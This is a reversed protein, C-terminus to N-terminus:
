NLKEFHAELKKDKKYYELLLVQGQKGPLVVSRSASSKTNIKDENDIDAYLAFEKRTSIDEYLNSNYDNYSTM